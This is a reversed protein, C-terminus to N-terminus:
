TPEQEHKKKGQDLHLHHELWLCFDQSAAQWDGKESDTLGKPPTVALTCRLIEIARKRVLYQLKKRRM